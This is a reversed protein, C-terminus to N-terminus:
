LPRGSPDAKITNRGSLILVSFIHAVAKGPALDGVLEENGVSGDLLMGLMDEEFDADVGSV